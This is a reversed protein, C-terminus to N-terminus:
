TRPLYPGRPGTRAALPAAPQGQTLEPDEPSAGSDGCVPTLTDHVGRLRVHPVVVDQVTLALEVPLLGPHCLEHTLATRGAGARGDRGTGRTGEHLLPWRPKGRM